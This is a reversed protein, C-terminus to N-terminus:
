PTVAERTPMALPIQAVGDSLMLLGHEDTWRLPHPLTWQRVGDDAERILRGAEQHWTVRRGEVLFTLSSGDAVDVSRAMWADERVAALWQAQM